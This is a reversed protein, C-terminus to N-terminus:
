KRRVICLIGIMACVFLIAGAAVIWIFAMYRKVEQAKGEVPRAPQEKLVNEEEQELVDQGEDDPIDLEDTEPLPDDPVNEEADEQGAAPTEEPDAASEPEQSSDSSSGAPSASINSMTQQSQYAPTVPRSVTPIVPKPATPGVPDEQGDDQMQRLQRITLYDSSPAISLIRKGEVVVEEGDANRLCLTIDKGMMERFVDSPIATQNGISVTITAGEKVQGIQDIIEDWFASTSQGTYWDPRDPRSVSSSSTKPMLKFRGLTCTTFVAYRQDEGREREIEVSLRGDPSSIYYNGGEFREPLAIRLIMPGHLSGNSLSARFQLEAKGDPDEQDIEVVAEGGVAAAAGFSDSGHEPIRRGESYGASYVVVQEGAIKANYLNGLRKITSDSLREQESSRLERMAQAVYEVEEASSNSSLKDVASAIRSATDLNGYSFEGSLFLEPVISDAQSGFVPVASLCLLFVTSFVAALRNFSKM